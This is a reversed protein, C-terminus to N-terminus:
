WSTSPLTNKVGRAREKMTRIRREIEGVHERAATTNTVIGPLLPSLSEFENDMLLTTVRFGGRDYVRLINKINNALNKATRVPTFEATILNIARSVSVLFPIGDVFMVDVALVVAPYRDVISRPIDMYEIHVHEPRKRVTRGRVGALDPGFLKNSHEVALPTIPLMPNTRVLHQFERDPPGGIMAQAERAAKADEIERRTFGEYRERITQILCIAAREESKELDIYPMGVENNKLSVPGDETHVVFHDGHESDFTVRCMKILQSFPLINAIGGQNVWVNKLGGLTGSEGMVTSGANGHGVLGRSKREVSTLIEPYPTSAYSACTDVYLHNAKLISPGRREAGRQLMSIGEEHINFNDFVLEPAPPSGGQDAINLNDTGEELAKLKPCDAKRHKADGCHWCGKNEGDQLFTLGDGNRPPPATPAKGTTKYNNLLRLMGDLTCPYNSVGKAYDNSLENRLKWYRDKDAGSLFMMALFDDRAAEKADDLEDPTPNDPDAVNAAQLKARILGPEQGWEGGYTEVVGIIAMFEEMYDANAMGSKQVYLFAKKKAQQITL